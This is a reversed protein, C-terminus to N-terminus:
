ALKLGSAEFCEFDGRNLTALAADRRAAAAAIMCDALTGRRRGTANFLEAARQADSESYSVRETVIQEALRLEEPPLPGCLFETWAITDMRLRHGDTLWARLRRDADTGPVLARILFCTDLHIAPETM